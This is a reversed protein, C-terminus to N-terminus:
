TEAADDSALAAHSRRAALFSSEPDIRASAKPKTGASRALEMAHRSATDDDCRLDALGAFKVRWGSVQVHVTLTGDSNARIPLVEAIRAVDLVSDIKSAQAGRAETPDWGISSPGFAASRGCLVGANCHKVRGITALM